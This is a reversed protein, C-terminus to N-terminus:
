LTSKGLVDRTAQLAQGDGSEGLVKTINASWEEGDIGGDKVDVDTSLWHTYLERVDKDAEPDHRLIEPDHKLRKLLSEARTAVAKSANEKGKATETSESPDSPLMWMDSGDWVLGSSQSGTAEEPPVVKVADRLVEGAEKMADRLMAESKHVYEEAQSRTIGQVRQFESSLTTRLQAIDFNESAHKLTEPLSNQVAAVANPPIVSQLRSLLTQAPTSTAAPERDTPASSSPTTDGGSSSPEGEAKAKEESPAEQSTSEAPAETTLKSLEKQAQVVVDGFDKRATELATQSQYDNNM